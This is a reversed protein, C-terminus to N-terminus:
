SAPVTSYVSQMEASPYSEELSHGTTWVGLTTSCVSQMEASPYSKGLLHGTVRDAQATYYVSQMEASSYSEGLSHDTAWDATSSSYVSQMEASQYSGEFLTKHGERNHSWSAGAADRCLLLIGVGLTRSIVRFLRITVNWYHQLKLSASYGKMAMVGLGVRAWLPLM